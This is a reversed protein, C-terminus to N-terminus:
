TVMYREKIWLQWTHRGGTSSGDKTHQSKQHGYLSFHCNGVKWAGDERVKEGHKVYRKGLKGLCKRLKCYHKEM